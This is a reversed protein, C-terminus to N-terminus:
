KVSSYDLDTDVDVVLPDINPESVKGKVIFLNWSCSQTGRVAYMCVAYVFRDKM